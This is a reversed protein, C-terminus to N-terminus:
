KEGGKVKAPQDARWKKLQELYQPNAASYERLTTTPKLYDFVAALSTPELDNLELGHFKLPDPKLDAQSIGFLNSMNNEYYNLIMGFADKSFNNTGDGGPDQDPDPHNIQKLWGQINYVFDIGQLNGGLEIRKLPGHLYYDYHAQLEAESSSRLSAQDLDGRLSTYVSSLRKDADYTYYHYFEDLPTGALYSQFGVQLVNGLFDYDYNIVFTHNLAKPRQAMWTVRGQEDYSYWTIINENETWSVASMVFEQNLPLSTKSAIDPDSLDYYTKVWDKKDAGSWTNFGRNELLANLSTGFVQSGSYEGSEIPRGLNDYDTYSFKGDVQQQENQSFRISGDRRYLYETTGADTEQTSLLWGQHNYTYYTAFPLNDLEDGSYSDIGNELIEKVGNPAISVRLRGADDYFNWSIDGFGYGPTNPSITLANSASVTYLGAPLIGTNGAGYTTADGTRVNKLTASASLNAASSEILYFAGVGDSTEFQAGTSTLWDGERATMLVNESRDAFSVAMNGDQDITVSQIAQDAMTTPGNTISFIKNRLELYEDLETSVGLIRSYVEHGSGMRLVEGPGASRKIEGTGDNYYEIQSYPYASQPVHEEMDNNSSFYWGLTNRTTQDLPEGIDDASYTEGNQDLIFDPFYVFESFETPATLGTLVTRNFQDKVSQSILISDSSFQRTQIQLSEGFQDFYNISESYKGSNDFAATRISNERQVDRVTLTIEDSRVRVGCNNELVARFKTNDNFVENYSYTWSGANGVSVWERDGVKKEWFAVEADLSSNLRIEGDAPTQSFLVREGSIQNPQPAESIGVWFDRTITGCNFNNVRAVARYRTSSSLNIYTLTSNTTVQEYTGDVLQREWRLFTAPSTVSATSSGANDGPCLDGDATNDLTMTGEVEITINKQITPNQDYCSEISGVTSPDNSNAYDCPVLEPPGWTILDIRKTGSLYWNVSVSHADDSGVITGGIVSWKYQVYPNESQYTQDNRDSACIVTEGIIQNSYTLIPSIILWTITTIYLIYLRM